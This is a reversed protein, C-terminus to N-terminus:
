GWDEWDRKNLWTEATAITESASPKITHCGWEGDTLAYLCTGHFSGSMGYAAFRVLVRDKTDQGRCDGTQPADLVLVEKRRDKEDKQALRDSKPWATKYKGTQLLTM